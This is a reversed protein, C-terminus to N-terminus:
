NYKPGNMEEVVRLIMENNTENYITGTRVNGLGKM